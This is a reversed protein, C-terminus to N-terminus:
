VQKDDDDERGKAQREAWEEEELAEKGTSDRGEGEREPPAAVNGFPRRKKYSRWIGYTSSICHCLLVSLLLALAPIGPIIYDTDQARFLRVLSELWELCQRHREARGLEWEDPMFLRVGVLSDLDQFRTSLNQVLTEAFTTCLDVCADHSGLTPYDESPKEHLEFTHTTPRGDSDVGQVKVEPNGGEPGHKKIFPSLRASVGGGFDDGCDVYRSELFSISRRIQGHVSAIDLERQQFARNLVNLQELVDALFYLLFHFRYSTALEYLTIDWEYLMVILAPFVEVARLIADGRSLWRVDHIGQLELNTKTFVEQLGIFRQHWPGSRGLHEAVQRLLSDVMGFEPLQEAADKAALAETTYYTGYGKAPFGPVKLRALYRVLNVWLEIPADQKTVFLLSDLLKVVREKETDRALNDGNIRPQTAADDLLKQQHKLAEKHKTTAAHRKFAQTQVDTAGKGGRGCPGAYGAHETCISCKFAPFGDAKKLLILWSFRELWESKYKYLAEAYTADPGAPKSPGPTSPSAQTGATAPTSLQDAPSAPTAGAPGGKKPWPLTSQMYRASKKAVPVAAIEEGSPNSSDQELVPATPSPCLPEDIPEFPVDVTPAVAPPKGHNDVAALNSFLLDLGTVAASLDIPSRRAPEDGPDDPREIADPHDAM